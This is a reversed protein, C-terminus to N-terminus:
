GPVAILRLILLSFAKDAKSFEEHTKPLKGEVQPQTDEQEFPGLRTSPQREPCGGLVVQLRNGVGGDTRNYFSGISRRNPVLILKWGLGMSGTHTVSKGVFYDGNTNGDIALKAPGNFDTSIQTAKGNRALNQRRSPGRGRGVAKTQRTSM